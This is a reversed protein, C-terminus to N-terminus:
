EVPWLVGVDTVRGDVVELHWRHGHHEASQNTDELTFVQPLRAVVSEVSDGVRVQELAYCEIRATSEPTALDYVLWGAHRELMPWVVFPVGLGLALLLGAGLVLHRGSAAVPRTVQAGARLLLARYTAAATCGTLAVFPSVSVAFGPGHHLGKGGELLLYGHVIVVSALVAAVAGIACSAFPGPVGRAGGYRLALPVGVLVWAALSLVVGLPLLANVAGGSKAVALVTMVVAAVGAAILSAGLRTRLAIGPGHDAEDSM